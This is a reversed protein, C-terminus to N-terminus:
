PRGCGAQGVSQPVPGTAARPQRHPRLAAGDDAAAGACRGPSNSNYDYDSDSIPPPAAQPYAIDMLATLAAPGAIACLKFSVCAARRARTPATACGGSCSTPSTTSCNRTWIPRVPTNRSVAPPWLFIQEGEGLPVGYLIQRILLGPDAMMGGLLVLSEEWWRYRTYRGLTATIDDLQAALDDRHALACAFGYARLIPRSFCV